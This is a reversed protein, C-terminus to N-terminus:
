TSNKEASFFGAPRCWVASRAPSASFGRNEHFDMSFLVCIVFFLITQLFHQKEFLFFGGAPSCWVSSRAPSAGFGGNGVFDM